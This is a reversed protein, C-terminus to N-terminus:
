SPEGKGKTEPARRYSAYSPQEVSLKDLATTWLHDSLGPMELTVEGARIADCLERNLSALDGDHGLLQSLRAAEEAHIAPGDRMERIAIDLANAAVRTKFAATADLQPLVEERLFKAVAEVLLDGSPKDLM